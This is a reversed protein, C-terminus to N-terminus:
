FMKVNIERAVYINKNLHQMKINFIAGEYFYYLEIEYLGDNETLDTIYFHNKRTDKIPLKSYYNIYITPFLKSCTVSDSNFYDHKAYIIINEDSVYNLHLYNLVESTGLTACILGIDIDKCQSFYNGGNCSSFIIMPSAIVVIVYHIKIYNCYIGIYCTM